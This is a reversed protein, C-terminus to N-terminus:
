DTKIKNRQLDARGSVKDSVYFVTKKDARVTLAGCHMLPLYSKRMKCDMVSQGTMGPLVSRMNLLCRKM